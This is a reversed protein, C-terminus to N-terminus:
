CKSSIGNLNELTGSWKVYGCCHILTEIEGHKRERHRKLIAVCTWSFHYNIIDKIQMKKMVLPTSYREM